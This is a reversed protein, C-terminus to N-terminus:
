VECPWQIIAKCTRTRPALRGQVAFDLFRIEELKHGGPRLGWVSFLGPSLGRRGFGQRCSRRFVHVGHLFDREQCAATASRPMPRLALGLGLADASFSGVMPTPIIIRRTEKICAPRLQHEKVIGFMNAHARIIRLLQIYIFLFLLVDCNVFLKLKCMDYNM